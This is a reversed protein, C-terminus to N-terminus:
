GHRVQGEPEGAGPLILLFTCDEAPDTQSVLQDLRPLDGSGLAQELAPKRGPDKLLEVAGGSCLWLHQGPQLRVLSIHMKKAADPDSIRGAAGRDPPLCICQAADALLAPDNGLRCIQVTPPTGRDATCVTLAACDLSPAGAVAAQAKLQYQVEEALLAATKRPDFERAEAAIRLLFTGAARAAAEAGAENGTALSFVTDHENEATFVADRSKQSRGPRCNHYIKIRIM